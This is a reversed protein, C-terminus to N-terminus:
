DFVYKNYRDAIYSGRTLTTILYVQRVVTANASLVVLEGSIDASLLHIDPITQTSINWGILFHKRCNSCWVFDRVRFAFNNIIMADNRRRINGRGYRQTWYIDRGHSFRAYFFLKHQACAFGPPIWSNEMLKLPPGVPQFSNKYSTPQDPKDQAIKRRRAFKLLSNKTVNTKGTCLKRYFFNLSEFRCMSNASLSGTTKLYDVYHKLYHVNLICQQLGFLEFILRYATTCAHGLTELKTEDVNDSCLIFTLHSLAKVLDMEEGSLRGNVLPFFEYMFFDRLENFKWHGRTTTNFPRLTRKLYSPRKIDSMEALVIDPSDMRRFLEMMTRFLITMLNHLIDLPSGLVIDFGIVRLMPTVGKWGKNLADDCLEGNIDCISLHTRLPADDDPSFRVARNFSEGKLECKLCAFYGTPGIIKLYESKGLLDGMIFMTVGSITHECENVVVPFPSNISNLADKLELMAEHPLGGRGQWALICMVNERRWRLPQELENIVAYVPTIPAPTSQYLKTADISITLSIFVSGDCQHKQRVQKYHDGHVVDMLKGDFSTSRQQAEIISKFNKPKSVISTIESKIDATSM